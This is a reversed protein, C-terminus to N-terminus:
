RAPQYSLPSPEPTSVHVQDRSVIRTTPRLALCENRRYPRTLPVAHRFSGGPGLRISEWHDGDEAERQDELLRNGGRGVPLAIAGVRRDVLFHLLVDGGRLGGLGARLGARLLRELRQRGLQHRRRVLVAVGTIEQEM